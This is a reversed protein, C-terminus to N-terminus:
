VPLSMTLLRPTLRAVNYLYRASLTAQDFSELPHKFLGTGGRSLM